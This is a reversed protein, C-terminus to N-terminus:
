QALCCSVWCRGVCVCAIRLPLTSEAPERVRCWAWNRGRQLSACVHCCPRTPASTPVESELSEDARVILPTKGIQIRLKRQRTTVAGGSSEVAGRLPEVAENSVPRTSASAGKGAPLCDESAPQPPYRREGGDAGASSAAGPLAASSADSPHSRPSGAPVPEVFVDLDVARTTAGLRDRFAVAFSQTERAVGRTLAEGSLECQSASPEPPAARVRFPSGPVPVGFVSVAITYTGSQPCKYTVTYRGDEHDWVRARMPAVGRIAVFIAEGGRLVCRGHADLTEIVFSQVERVTAEILGAGSLRYKAIPATRLAEREAEAAAQREANAEERARATTDVEPQVVQQRGRRHRDPAM